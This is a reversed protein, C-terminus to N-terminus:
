RIRCLIDEGFGGCGRHLFHTSHVCEDLLVGRVGDDDTIEVVGNDPDLTIRSDLGPTRELTVFFSETLEVIVDDVLPIETCQQTDCAGFTLITSASYYDMTSVVIASLFM